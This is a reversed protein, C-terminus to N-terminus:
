AGTAGSRTSAAETRATLRRPAGHSRAIRAGSTPSTACASAPLKMKRQDDTAVPTTAHCPRRSNTGAPRTGARRKAFSPRRAIGITKAGPSAGRDATISASSARLANRTPSADLAVGGMRLVSVTPAAPTRRAAAIKIGTARPPMPSARSSPSPGRARRSLATTAAASSLGQSCCSCHACPSFDLADELDRTREGSRPDSVNSSGHRCAVMGHSREPARDLNQESGRPHAAGRLIGLEGRKGHSRRLEDRHTVAVRHPEAPGVVRRLVVGRLRPDKESGPRPELDRSRPRTRAGVRHPDRVRHHAFVAPCVWLLTSLAASSLAPRHQELM